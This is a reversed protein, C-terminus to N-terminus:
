NVSFPAFILLLPAASSNLSFTRFAIISSGCCCFSFSIFCNSPLDMRFFWGEKSEGSELREPDPVLHFHGM